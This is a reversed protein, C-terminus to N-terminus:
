VLTSAVWFFMWRTWLPPDAGVLLLVSGRSGRAVGLLPVFRGVVGGHFSMGGHWIALPEYWPEAVGSPRHYFLWWGFRGGLVVGLALWGVLEDMQEVSVRLSQRGPM